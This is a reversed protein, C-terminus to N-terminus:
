RMLIGGNIDMTAGTIYGAEDSALYAVLLAVEHPQGVRQVPISAAMERVREKPMASMIPGDIAAPSVANVTVGHPALERAFIKTLVIIGAKSAAYHAGAVLGGQQGALSALNVIRGWGREKMLPGVLQCGFLVGRLNVALVDDWEEPDIEWIPRSLTIAANNVLVDVAGHAAHVREIMERMADKDRVDVTASDADSLASAVRDAAGASIDAVIVRMGMESLARAIAEGLGQGGGTM